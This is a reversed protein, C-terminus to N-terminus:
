LIQGFPQPRLALSPFCLAIQPFSPVARWAYLRQEVLYYITKNSLLTEEKLSVLLKVISNRSRVIVVNRDPQQFIMLIFKAFMPQKEKPLIWDKNSFFYKPSTFGALISFQFYLISFRSNFILFNFILFNFILFQFNLFQFKLISFQSNHNQLSSTLTTFLHPLWGAHGGSKLKRSCGCDHRLLLFQSRGRNFMSM